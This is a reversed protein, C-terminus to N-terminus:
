EEQNRFLDRNSEELIVCYNYQFATRNYVTKIWIKLFIEFKKCKQAEQKNLVYLIALSQRM